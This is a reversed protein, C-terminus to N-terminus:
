NRILITNTAVLRFNTDNAASITRDLLQYNNSNGIFNATVNQSLLVAVKVRNVSNWDPVEDANYYKYVSAADSDDINAYMIRLHEVGDDFVTAGDEDQCILENADSVYLTIEYEEDTVIGGACNIVDSSTQSSGSTAGIFRLAVIDSTAKAGSFNGSVVANRGQLKQEANWNWGTTLDTTNDSGLENEAMLNDLDRFGAQMLYLRISKLSMQSKAVLQETARMSEYSKLDGIVARFLGALMLLSLTMALMIEVISFGNQRSKLTDM